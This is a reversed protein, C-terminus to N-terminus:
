LAGVAAGVQFHVCVGLDVRREVAFAVGFVVLRRRMVVCGTEDVLLRSRVRRRRRRGLKAVRLATVHTRLAHVGGFTQREVEGGTWHHQVLRAQLAGRARRREVHAGHDRELFLKVALSV